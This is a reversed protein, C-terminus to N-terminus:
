QGDCYKHVCDLQIVTPRSLIRSVLFSAGRRSGTDQTDSKCSKHYMEVHTAIRGLSWQEILQDFSALADVGDTQIRTKLQNLRARECVFSYVLGPYPDLPIEM